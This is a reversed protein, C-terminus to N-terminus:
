DLGSLPSQFLGPLSHCTQLSLSACRACDTLITIARYAPYRKETSGTSFQQNFGILEIESRHRNGLADQRYREITEGAGPRDRYAYVLAGLGM